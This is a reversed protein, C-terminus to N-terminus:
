GVARSAHESALAAANAAVRSRLHEPVAAETELYASAAPITEGNATLQWGPDQHSLESVQAATMSRLRDAVEDITAREEVSFVSLDAPRTSILRDHRYGYADTERRMRARGERVLRSRVPLLPRPAPGRPLRQFAVGSIPSGTKRISSFEAFYLLKNLKTAGGSVDSELLGACHLVLQAFKDEDYSAGVM